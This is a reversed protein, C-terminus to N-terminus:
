VPVLDNFKDKSEKKLRFLDCQNQMDLWTNALVGLVKELRLAMECSVSSKGNLIRNLTSPSVNLHKALETENLEDSLYMERIFEGPHMPDFLNIMIEEVLEYIQINSSYQLTRMACHAFLIEQCVGRAM